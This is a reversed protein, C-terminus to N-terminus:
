YFSPLIITVAQGAHVKLQPFTQVRSRHKIYHPRLLPTSKLAAERSMKDVPETVSSYSSRVAKLAQIGGIVFFSCFLDRSSRM